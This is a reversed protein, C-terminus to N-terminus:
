RNKSLVGRTQLWDGIARWFDPQRGTQPDMLRHNVGPIVHILMQRSREHSLRTLVDVTKRLPISRDNEGLVWFSPTTLTSLVPLPDFGFPGRLANM